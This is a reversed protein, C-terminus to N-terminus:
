PLWATSVTSSAHSATRSGAYSNKSTTCAYTHSQTTSWCSLSRATTFQAFCASAWSRPSGAGPSSPLRFRPGCPRLCLPSSCGAEDSMAIRSNSSDSAAFAGDFLVLGTFACAAADTTSVLGTSGAANIGVSISSTASALGEAPKLSFKAHSGRFKDEPFFLFFVACSGNADAGCSVESKWDWGIGLFRSGAANNAVTPPMPAGTGGPTTRGVDPWCADCGAAAGACDRAWRFSWCRRSAKCCRLAAASAACCCCGESCVGISSEHISSSSFSTSCFPLLLPTFACPLLAAFVFSRLAFFVPAESTFPAELLADSALARSLRSPVASASSSSRSYAASTTSSWSPSSSMSSSTASSDAASLASSVFSAKNSLSRKSLSTICPRKKSESPSAAAASPPAPVVTASGMASRMSSSSVGAETECCFRFRLLLPAFFSPLLSCAFGCASTSSRGTSSSSTIGSSSASTTSSTPATFALSSCGSADVTSSSSM